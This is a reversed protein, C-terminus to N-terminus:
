WARYLLSNTGPRLKLYTRFSNILDHTYVRPMWVDSHKSKKFTQITGESISDGMKPVKIVQGVNSLTLKICTLSGLERGVTM